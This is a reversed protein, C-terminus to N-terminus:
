TGLYDGKGLPVGNHRLLAYATTMHFHFNAWTRAMLYAEGTMTIESDRVKLKVMRTDSGEFSAVPLSEIFAIVKAIRAQLEAFSTETDPHSPIEAQALRASCGKAMDCAIQVQRSMPFMDPYLRANLLAAEDWKQSAAHAAATSLVSSLNKLFHVFRQPGLAHMSLSM